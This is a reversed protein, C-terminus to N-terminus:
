VPCCRRGGPGTSCTVDLKRYVRSLHTEVTRPSLFVMPDRLDALETALTDLRGQDANTHLAPNVGQGM